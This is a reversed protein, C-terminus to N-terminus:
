KKDDKQGHLKHWRARSPTNLREVNWEPVLKLLGDPMLKGGATYTKGRVRIPEDYEEQMWPCEKGEFRLHLNLDLPCQNRSCRDWRPCQRTIKVCDTESYKERNFTTM